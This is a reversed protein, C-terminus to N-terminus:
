YTRNAISNLQKMIKGVNVLVIIIYPIWEKLIKKMEKAVNTEGYVYYSTSEGNYSVTVETYTINRTICQRLNM